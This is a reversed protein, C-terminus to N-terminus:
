ETEKDTTEADAEIWKLAAEFTDCRRVKNWCGDYWTLQVWGGLETGERIRYRQGNPETIEWSDGTDFYDKTVNKITLNMM